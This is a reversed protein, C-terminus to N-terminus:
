GPKNINPNGEYEEVPMPYCTATGYSGWEETAHAGSPFMDTGGRLWRRLDGFRFGALFLDKGRQDRLEMTLAQGSFDVADQNGFARRENVFALVAGADSGQANIAEYMDHRASLYDAILIDDDPQYEAPQGGSAITQGNYGSYRLGQYPTYLPSLANHGQRWYPWHQVRPDTLFPELDERLFNDPGGALFHPHVGIRHNQGSINSYMNNSPAEDGIPAYQLWWEFGPSVASAYTVVQGYNGCVERSGGWWATQWPGSTM